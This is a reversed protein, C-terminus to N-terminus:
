HSSAAPWHWKESPNLTLSLDMPVPLARELVGHGMLEMAADVLSAEDGNWRSKAQELTPAEGQDLFVCLLIYLSTAEVSANLEFIMRDMHM